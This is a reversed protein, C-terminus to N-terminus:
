CQCTRATAVLALLLLFDAIAREPIAAGAPSPLEIVPEEGFPMSAAIALAMAFGDLDSCLRRQELDDLRAALDLARPHGV